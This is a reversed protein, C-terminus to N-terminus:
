IGVQYSRGNFAPIVQLEKKINELLDILTPYVRGGGAKSGPPLYKKEHEGHMLFVTRPRTDLILKVIEERSAHASLRFAELKAKVEKEKGNVKLKKEERHRLNLLQAGPSEEDLYGTFAIVSNASEALYEAYRASASQNMLMGSSAIIVSEGTLVDDELFHEFSDIGDRRCSYRDRAVQVGHGLFIPEEIENLCSPNLFKGEEAFREYIQCVDVVRGDLFLNFPLYKEELFREKIILILEQARGVAFAPILMTEGKELARSLSELFLNEQVRRKIGYNQPTYGYTSETILIDIELDPPLKLGTVTHQNELSFDGTFLVTIGNLKLLIAAAGLIHGAPFFEIEWRTEGTPLFFPENFPVTCTSFIANQVDMETFSEPAKRGSRLGDELLVKMLAKTAETTFVPLTPCLKKLYPVSGSHDLHVHSLLLADIDHLSIGLKTLFSYDPHLDAQHLYIGADLLIHHGQISVLISTGGIKEGGGLFTIKVDSLDKPPRYRQFAYWSARIAESKDAHKIFERSWINRLEKKNDTIKLKETLLLLTLLDSPFQRYQEDIGAHWEPENRGKQFLLLYTKRKRELLPDLFVAQAVKDLFHTDILGQSFSLYIRCIALVDGNLYSAFNEWDKRTVLGAVEDLIISWYAIEQHRFLYEPSLYILKRLHFRAQTLNKFDYEMKVLYLLVDVLLSGDLPLNEEVQELIELSLLYSKYIKGASFLHEAVRLQEKFHYQIGPQKLLWELDEISKKLNKWCDIFLGASKANIGGKVIGAKSLILARSFDGESYYFGALKILQEDDLYSELGILKKFYERAEDRYGRNEYYIGKFWYNNITSNM